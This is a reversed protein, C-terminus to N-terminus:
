SNTQRGTDRTLRGFSGRGQEARAAIVSLLSPFPPLRRRGGTRKAGLKKPAPLKSKKRYAAQAKVSAYRRGQALAAGLRWRAAATAPAREAARSWSWSAAVAQAAAAAHRQM